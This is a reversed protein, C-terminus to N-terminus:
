KVRRLLSAARDRPEDGELMRRLRERGRSLRSMVTGLPVGLADACDQYSMGSLAVMLVVQRQEESLRALAEEMERLAVRATQAEGEAPTRRAADISEPAPRARRKRIENAHLNRMIRFLWPRLSAGGRWLHRRGIARELCDQVLDDAHDPDRLLARAYRRLGPVCSELETLFDM